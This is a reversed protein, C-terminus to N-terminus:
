MGGFHSDNHMHNMDNMHNMNNLNMMDDMNNMNSMMDNMQNMTDMQNMMDNMMNMQNMMDQQADFAMTDSPNFGPGMVYGGHDFPTIARMAEDLSFQQFQQDMIGQLEQQMNMQMNDFDMAHMQNMSDLMQSDMPTGFNNNMIQLAQKNLDMFSSRHGAMNTLFDALFGYKFVRDMIDFPVGEAVEYLEYVAQFLGQSNPKFKEKISNQHEEKLTSYILFNADLNKKMMWKYLLQVSERDKAKMKIVKIPHGQLVGQLYKDFYKQQKDDLESYFEQKLESTFDNFSAFMNSIGDELKKKRRRAKNIAKKNYSWGFFIVAGVFIFPFLESM